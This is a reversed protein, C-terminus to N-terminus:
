AVEEQPVYNGDDEEYNQEDEAYVGDEQGDFQEEDDEHNSGDM